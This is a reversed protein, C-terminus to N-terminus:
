SSFFNRFKDAQARNKSINPCEFSLMVKRYDVAHVSHPAIDSVPLNDRTVIHAWFSTFRLDLTCVLFIHSRLHSFSCPRIIFDLAGLCSLRPLRQTCLLFCGVTWGGQVYRIGM